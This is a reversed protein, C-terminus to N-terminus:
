RVDFELASALVEAKQTYAAFLFEGALANAPERRLSDRCERISSNLSALSKEYTDKVSPDLSRARSNYSNELERITRSLDSDLGASQVPVNNMANLTVPEDPTESHDPVAPTGTLLTALIALCGLAGLPIPNPVLHLQGLWRDLFGVPEHIIGETELTARVHAWITAPPEALPLQRGLAVIQQFDALIAGCRACQRAHDDVHPKGAGELYDALEIDFQYCGATKVYREETM